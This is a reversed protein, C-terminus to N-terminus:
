FRFQTKAIAVHTRGAFKHIPQKYVTVNRVSVFGQWLDLHATIKEDKVVQGNQIHWEATDWDFPGDRDQSYQVALIISYVGHTLKHIGKDGAKELEKNSGNLAEKFLKMILGCVRGKRMFSQKRAIKKVTIPLKM